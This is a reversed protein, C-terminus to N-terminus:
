KKKVHDGQVRKKIPSGSVDDVLEEDSREVMGVQDVFGRKKVPEPSVQDSRHLSDNKRNFKSANGHPSNGESLKENGDERVLSLPPPPAVEKTSSAWPSVDRSNASTPTSSLSPSHPNSDPTASSLSPSSRIFNAPLSPGIFTTANSATTAAATLPSTQTFANADAFTERNTAPAATTAAATTANSFNLITQRPSIKPSPTSISNSKNNEKNGKKGKGKKRGATARSSTEGTVTEVNPRNANGRIETGAADISPKNGEGFTPSITKGADTVPKANRTQKTKEDNSRGEDDPSSGEEDSPLFLQQWQPSSVNGSHSSGNNHGSRAPPPGTSVNGLANRAGKGGGRRRTVMEFDNSNEQKRKNEHSNDDFRVKKQPIHGEQILTDRANSMEPNQDQFDPPHKSQIKIADSSSSGNSSDSVGNDKEAVKSSAKAAVDQFRKTAELFLEALAGDLIPSVDDLFKFPTLSGLGIADEWDEVSNTFLFEVGVGHIQEPLLSKRSALAEVTEETEIIFRHQFDVTKGWFFKVVKIGIEKIRRIISNTDCILPLGEIVIFNGIREPTTARNPARNVPRPAFEKGIFLNHDRGDYRIATFWTSRIKKNADRLYQIFDPFASNDQFVIKVHFNSVPFYIPKENSPTRYKGIYDLHLPTNKRYSWFPSTKLFGVGNNNSPRAILATPVHFVHKAELLKKLNEPDRNPRPLISIFAWRADISASRVYDYTCLRHKDIESCLQKAKRTQIIIIVSQPSILQDDSNYDPQKEFTGDTITVPQIEPVISTFEWPKKPEVYPRGILYRVTNRSGKNSFRKGDFTPNHVPVSGSVIYVAEYLNPPFLEANVELPHEDPVCMTLGNACTIVLPNCNWKALIKALAHSAGLDMGEHMGAWLLVHRDNARVGQAEIFSEVKSYIAHPTTDKPYKRSLTNCVFSLFESINTLKSIGGLLLIEQNSIVPFPLDPGDYGGFIIQVKFEKCVGTVFEL